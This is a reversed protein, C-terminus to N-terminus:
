IVVKDDIDPVKLVIIDMDDEAVINHKDNKELIVIDGERLDYPKQNIIIHGPKLFIFIEDSDTHYHEKEVVGKPIKVRFFKAKGVAALNYSSILPYIERGDPRKEAEIENYRILKM